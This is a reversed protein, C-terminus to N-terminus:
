DEKPLKKQERHYYWIYMGATLIWSAPYSYVICDINNYHPLIFIIWLVRFVCIGCCTLIMPIFVNGVGRLAGSLVEIFSFLFYGPAMMLMMRTGIRIVDADSTFLYYCYKGVTMFLISFGISAALSMLLCTKVSKKMRTYKGAGYNQGVFTTISIGFAGNIMWFLSDIKGFATWAAVTDTGLTNISTQISMNSITYMISQLGSPIGIHIIRFFPDKYLRLKRFSLRYLDTTRILTILVLLSSVAQALVTAIAAGAVGMKWVLVFLLDLVINLICCVILFYLPRRSDGVARLISSGINYIFVFLIGAFYIQLYIISDKMLSEPTKMLTLLSPACLISIISIFISGVISFAIATHLTQSLSKEDRAGYYQAIIVTAGSSLGVFFGVILNAIQAASGGVCALAEKGVFRGVIVADATNYLQQFFTGLVIPFFFFLLQKWIVGETIQNGKVTKQQM